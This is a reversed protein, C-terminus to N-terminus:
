LAELLLVQRVKINKEAEAARDMKEMLARAERVKADLKKRTNFKRVLSYYLRRTEKANFDLICKPKKRGIRVMYPLHEFGPLRPGAPNAKRKNRCKGIARMYFRWELVNHLQAAQESDTEAILLGAIEASTKEPYLIVANEVREQADKLPDGQFILKQTNRKPSLRSFDDQM